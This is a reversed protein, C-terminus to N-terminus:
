LGRYRIEFSSFEGQFPDQHVEVHDVRSGPSGEERCWAVMRDVQQSSGEFVAEVRGDALNRVWGTVGHRVAADRTFARFFVGQVRGSILVRVRRGDM